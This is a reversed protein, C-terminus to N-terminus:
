ARHRACSHWANDRATHRAAQSRAPLDALWALARPEPLHSFISLSYVFDFAGDAFPLPPMLGNERTDVKKLNQRCWAVHDPNIDSGSAQWEPMMDLFRTMRGCGCGFDLIAPQRKPCYARYHDLFNMLDNYGTYLFLEPRSDAVISRLEVPPVPSVCSALDIDRAVGVTHAWELVRQPGLLYCAVRYNMDDRYMIALRARMRANTASELPHATSM